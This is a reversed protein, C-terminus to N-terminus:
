PAAASAENLYFPFVMNFRSNTARVTYDVHILLAGRDADRQSVDVGELEVRTEHYLIADRVLAVIQNVLSQDVEEFMLGDLGCGFQEHMVREGLQTTLLIQLSQHIDDVGAVLEVDAGGGSFQPPFAWGRGLFGPDDTM